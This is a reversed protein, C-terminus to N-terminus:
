RLYYNLRKKWYKSVGIKNKPYTADLDIIKNTSKNYTFPFIHHYPKNDKDSVISYGAPFKNLKLWSLFLITKDDCDGAHRKITYAPRMVLETGEPDKVYDIDNAVYDFMQYINLEKLSIADTFYSYVLREIENLTQKLTHEKIKSVKVIKIYM